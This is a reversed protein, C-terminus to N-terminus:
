GLIPLGLRVHGALAPNDDLFGVLEWAAGAERARQVADAIVQAHGGAGLIIIRVRDAIM